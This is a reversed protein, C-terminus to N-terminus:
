SFLAGNLEHVTIASPTNAKGFYTGGPALVPMDTDRHSNAPISEGAFCCTAEVAEGGSDVAYLTATVAGATVNTLRVRVRAVTAGSPATYIPAVTTGLVAPPFLQIVQTTM